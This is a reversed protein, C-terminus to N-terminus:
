VLKTCFKILILFFTFFFISVEYINLNNPKVELEINEILILTAFKKFVDNRPVYFSVFRIRIYRMMMGM